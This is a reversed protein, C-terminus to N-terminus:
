DPCGCPAGIGPTVVGQQAPCNYKGKDDVKSGTNLSRCASGM